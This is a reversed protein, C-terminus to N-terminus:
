IEIVCPELVKRNFIGEVLKHQRETLMTFVLNRKEVDLHKVFYILQDDTLNHVLATLRDIKEDLSLNKYELSM